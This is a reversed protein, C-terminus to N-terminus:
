SQDKRKKPPRRAKRLKGSWEKLRKDLTPFHGHAEHLYFVVGLAGFLVAMGILIFLPWFPMPDRVTFSTEPIIADIQYKAKIYTINLGGGRTANEWDPDSIYGRSSMRYTKTDNTQKYEFFISTRLMYAASNFLDGHPTAQSTLIKFRVDMKEGTALSGLLIPFVTGYDRGQYEIRPADQFKADVTRSETLTAYKYIEATLTLNVVKGSYRNQITFNLDGSEGPALVPTTFDTLKPIKSPSSMDEGISAPFTSLIIVFVIPIAARRIVDM